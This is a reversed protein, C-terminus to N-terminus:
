YNFSFFLYILVTVLSAGLYIKFYKKARELDISAAAITYIVPILLIRKLVNNFAASKDVSFVASLIEAAIFWLLAFELGTKSFPNEKTFFYKILILILAAYYGLQNVFISNTLSLLFLIIFFYILYDIIKLSNIKM